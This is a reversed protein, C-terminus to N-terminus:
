LLLWCLSGLYSTLQARQWSNLVVRDNNSNKNNKVPVATIYKGTQFTNLKNPLKLSHFSNLPDTLACDTKLHTFHFTM